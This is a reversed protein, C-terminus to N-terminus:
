KCYIWHDDNFVRSIVCPAFSRVPNTSAGTAGTGVAGALLAALGLGVPALTQNKRAGTGLVLAVAALEATLAAELLLGQLITTEGQLTTTVEVLSTSYLLHVGYAALLSGIVQSVVLTATRAATLHGALFLAWTIAPNFFGGHGRGFMWLNVTYALALTTSAFTLGVLLATAVGTDDSALEPEYSNENGIKWSKIDASAFVFFLFATTGATEYVGSVMNDTVAARRGHRQRVDTAEVDADAVPAQTPGSPAGDHGLGVKNARATPTKPWDEDYVTVSDCDRGRPFSSPADGSPLIPIM